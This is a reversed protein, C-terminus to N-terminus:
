ARTAVSPRLAAADIASSVATPHRSTRSPAVLPALVPWARIPLSYSAKAALSMGIVARGVRPRNFVGAMMAPRLAPKGIGPHFPSAICFATAFGCYGFNFSSDGHGRGQNEVDSEITEAIWKKVKRKHGYGVGMPAGFVTSGFPERVYELACACVPKIGYAIHDVAFVYKPFRCPIERGPMALAYGM